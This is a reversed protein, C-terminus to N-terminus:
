PVNVAERLNPAGIVNQGTRLFTGRVVDFVVGLLPQLPLDKFLTVRHVAMLVVAKDKM